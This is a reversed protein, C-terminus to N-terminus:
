MTEKEVWKQFQVLRKVRLLAEKKGAATQMQKKLLILKQIFHDLAYNKDDPKREQALPDEPHILITNHQGAVAFCRAIGLAGLADLRDADQLIKAEITKPPINASFSHAHIAHYIEDLYKEPYHIARLFEVAFQASMQSSLHKNSNNKPLNYCDHLYAAPAVVWLNGNEIKALKMSWKFVRFLHSRDHTCDHNKAALTYAKHAIQELYDELTKQYYLHHNLDLNEPVYSVTQM